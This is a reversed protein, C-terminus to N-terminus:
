SEAGPPAILLDIAMLGVGVVIAADAVNFVHWRTFYLSVDIFDIVYGFRIRDVVNSTAGGIVLALGCRLARRGATVVGDRDPGTLRGFYVALAAVAAVSMAALVERRYAFPSRGFLGFVVGANRVYTFRVADGFVEVTHAPRALLWPEVWAKTLRDATLVALAILIALLRLRLASAKAAPPPEALSASPPPPSSM